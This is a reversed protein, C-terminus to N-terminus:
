ENIASQVLRRFVNCDNTAHSYSNHWKWYARWKLEELSPLTHSLKIYGSKHLEDFIKDCKAVDFTYKVDDQWKKHTPKLADCTLSKAKSPWIFEATLVESSEDDSSDSSHEIVHVERRSPRVIEKTSKIRNEQVLAFQQLQTLSLYIQGELKERLYSHM